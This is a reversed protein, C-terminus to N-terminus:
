DLDQGNKNKRQKMQKQGTRLSISSIMKPLRSFLIKLCSFTWNGLKNICQLFRGSDKEGLMSQM